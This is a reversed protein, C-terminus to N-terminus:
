VLVSIRPFRKFSMVVTDLFDGEKCRVGSLHLLIYSKGGSGM